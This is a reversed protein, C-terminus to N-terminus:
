IMLGADIVYEAGTIYSSEDSALFLVLQSVERATGFRGLPILTQVATLEDAREEGYTASMMPTQIFGPHVSNVRVNQKAGEFAMAKTLGRVAFKSAVYALNPFGLRATMGAVSSINVISGGGARQLSPLAAKVGLFVSHQNAACVELYATEDLNEITATPGTIGANNVLVSIPGFAREGEAVVEAWRAGITVDHSIFLAAKGLEKALERGAEDRQDTMVVRAGEDVFLRAHSAGMGQAAGTILAVKGSLRNM